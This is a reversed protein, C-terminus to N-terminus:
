VSQLVGQTEGVRDDTSGAQEGARGDQCCRSPRRQWSGVGVALLSWCFDWQSLIITMCGAPFRVCALYKGSCSWKKEAHGAERDAAPPNRGVTVPGSEESGGAGAFLTLCCKLFAPLTFLLFFLFLSLPWFFNEDSTCTLSSISGMNGFLNKILSVKVLVIKIHTKFSSGLDFYLYVREEIKPSQRYHRNNQQPLSSSDFHHMCFFSVMM